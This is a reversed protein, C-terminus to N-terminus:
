IEKLVQELLAQPSGASEAQVALLNLIHRYYDVQAPRRFYLGTALQELYAIDPLQPDPLRLVAVPGGTALHGGLRFPLVRITMYPLEASSILHRLQARMATRSRVPRRLAAEDIVVWLRPPKPGRLIEQRRLRLEVRRRLDRESLQGHALSIVERAYDPTQLLVPIVQATYGRILSAAQETGLYCEFWAPVLDAYDHWWQPTNAERALGLLTARESVESVGYAACLGAVHRLRLAAQGCEADSIAPAPLAIAVSADAASLGARERLRQLSAGLVMRAVTASARDQGLGPQDRIATGTGSSRASPETM